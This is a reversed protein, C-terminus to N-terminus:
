KVYFKQNISIKNKVFYAIPVLLIERQLTTILVVVMDLELVDEL